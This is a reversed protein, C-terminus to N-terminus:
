SFASTTTEGEMELRGPRNYPQLGRIERMLRERPPEEFFEITEEENEELDENRDEELDNENQKDEPNPRVPLVQLEEDDDELDDNNRTSKAEYSNLWKVDRTILVHKTELNLMRYANGAHNAAYGLFM